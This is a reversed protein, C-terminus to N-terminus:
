GRNSNGVQSLYIYLNKWQWHEETFDEYPILFLLFLLIKERLHFLRIDNGM